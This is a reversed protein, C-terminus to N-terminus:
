LISLLFRPGLFLPIRHQNKFAGEQRSRTGGFAESGENLRVNWILDFLFAAGIRAQWVERFHLKNSIHSDYRRVQFTKFEQPITL